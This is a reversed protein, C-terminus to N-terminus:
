RQEGFRRENGSTLRGINDRHQWILLAGLLGCAVGHWVPFEAGAWRLWWPMLIAVAGGLISGASVFRTLWMMFVAVLIAFLAVSPLLVVLTGFSTAVGKGGKGGLFVSFNHGIVVLLGCIPIWVSGPLLWSALGVALAGKVIDFIAVGLAPGKGLARMANTAGSNGSGVSRIDIGRARALWAATPIAGLFYSAVAALLGFLM